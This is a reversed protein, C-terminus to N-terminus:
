FSGEVYDIFAVFGLNLADYGRRQIDDETDYEKDVRAGLEIFRALFGDPHTFELSMGNKLVSLSGYETLLEVAFALRRDPTPTNQPRYGYL